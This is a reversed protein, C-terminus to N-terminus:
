NYGAKWLTATFRGAAIDCSVSCSFWMSYLYLLGLLDTWPWVAHLQKNIMGANKTNTSRDKIHVFVFTFECSAPKHYFLVLEHQGTLLHKYNSPLTFLRSDSLPPSLHYRKFVPIVPCKEGPLCEHHHERNYMCMFLPVFLRTIFRVDLLLPPLPTTTTYQCRLVLFYM